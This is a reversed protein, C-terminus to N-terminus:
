PSMQMWLAPSALKAFRITALMEQCVLLKLLMPFSNGLAGKTYWIHSGARRKRNIALFFPSEPAKAAEPRHSAFAKFLRVPCRHNNTAQATPFFARQHGDGHRTKSGRESKWVRGKGNDPDIDLAIDGWKLKRSEDRARFGFHLSLAWWVTRQLVEPEHDGFLGKEFLLDEEAETLARASQLRNGKAFSEVM